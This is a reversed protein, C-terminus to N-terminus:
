LLGSCGKLDALTEAKMACEVEAKTGQDQCATVVDSRTEELIEKVLEAHDPSDEMALKEFHEFFGTCTAEDLGDGRPKEHLLLEAEKEAEVCVDLQEPTSSDMICAAAQAYLEPGLRVVHHETEKVCASLDSADTGRIEAMHKCVTEDSPIDEAHHSLEELTESDIGDVTELAAASRAVVGSKDAGIDFHKAEPKDATDPTGAEVEAADATDAKGDANAGDDKQAAGDKKPSKDGSECAFLLTLAAVPVLLRLRNVAPVTGPEGAGQCGPGPAESM